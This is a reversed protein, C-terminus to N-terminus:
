GTQARGPQEWRCGCLPHPPRAVRLHRGGPSALYVSTNILETVERDLSMADTWQTIVALAQGVALHILTPNTSERNRYLVALQTAVSPWDPDADTRHHDACRLCSSIGPLVLPGIHARGSSTHIALHPTDAQVLGHDDVVDPHGRDALVVFSPTHETVHYGCARLSMRMTAAVEGDGIVRVRLRGRDSMIKTSADASQYSLALVDYEPLLLMREAPSLMRFHNDLADNDVLAGVDRLAQLLDGARESPATELLEADTTLGDLSGLWTLEDMTLERLLLGTDGVQVTRGRRRILPADARLRHRTM